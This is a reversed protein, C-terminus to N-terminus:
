HHTIRDVWISIVSLAIFVLASLYPWHSDLKLQSTIIDHTDSVILAAAIALLLM